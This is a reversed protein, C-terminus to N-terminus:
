SQYSALAPLLRAISDELGGPRSRALWCARQEEICASLDAHLEADKPCGLGASRALRFAGHRALRIAQALERRVLEGDECAPQSGAVRAEADELRALVEDLGKPDAAGTDFPTLAGERILAFQLASGNPTNIGTRTYLEGVDAIVAGLQGARDEFVCEDIVSALDIDRNSEYCWAVASGYALPAFAIAPPAMHGNDGWDTILFGRAGNALGTEAADRLNALANPLRGLLTNWTSTGPCVWFPFDSEAFPAVQGKFGRLTAESVGFIALRELADASLRIPGEVPAEYHWALAVTDERPLSPVLEPHQRVIDGWFQVECGQEHLGRLLRNLFELYVAGRGRREVESRSVGQGLEFTEDCGINVRQSRFNPLLERMLGLVFEANDPTPALVGPPMKAGWPTTWGDPAEARHRYDAHSLWRGMHGFGNQNAVLEIGHERCLTDLWRVDDPTMPSADRWVERHDVYAFTHETYLQLHNLRFCSMLEVIRALTERTPVRDRSVDLMYGRTPFDPWDRVRIGPLEHGYHERLQELARNAYRMGAADAHRIDIGLPGIALEFGEPPLSSSTRYAVEPDRSRLGEGLQEVHRPAPFLGGALEQSM